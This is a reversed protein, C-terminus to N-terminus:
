YIIAVLVGEIDEFRIRSEDYIIENDGKLVAYWGREDFGTEIIRHVMRKDDNMYSVIDGKQIGSSTKPRIAVGNAGEDLVPDMSKTSAYRSIFANQVYFTVRDRYIKIDKEDIFDQPSDIDQLMMSDPDLPLVHTYDDNYSTNLQNYDLRCEYLGKELDVVRQFLENKVDEIVRIETQYTSEMEKYQFLTYIAAASVIVICLLSIFVFFARSFKKIRSSNWPKTNKM